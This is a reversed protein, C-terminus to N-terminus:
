YRRLILLLKAEDGKVLICAVCKLLQGAFATVTYCKRVDKDPMKLDGKNPMELAGRWDNAIKAIRGSSLLRKKANKEDCNAM